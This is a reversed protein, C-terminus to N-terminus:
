AAGFGAAAAVAVFALAGVGARARAGPGFFAPALLEVFGEVCGPLANTDANGTGDYAPQRAPLKSADPMPIAIRQQAGDHAPQAGIRRLLLVALPM